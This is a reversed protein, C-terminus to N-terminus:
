RTAVASREALGHAALIERVEDATREPAATAIQLYMSGEGSGSDDVNGLARKEIEREIADRLRLEERMAMGKGELRISVMVHGRGADEARLREAKKRVFHGFVIFLVLPVLIWLM